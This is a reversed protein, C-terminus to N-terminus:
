SRLFLNEYNSLKKRIKRSYIFYLAVLHKPLFIQTTVFVFKTKVIPNERALYNLLYRPKKTSKTTLTRKETVNFTLLKKLLKNITKSFIGKNLLKFVELYLQTNTPSQWLYCKQSIDFYIGNSQSM